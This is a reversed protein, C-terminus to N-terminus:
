RFLISLKVEDSLDYREAIELLQIMIQRDDFAEWVDMQKQSSAELLRYVIVKVIPM